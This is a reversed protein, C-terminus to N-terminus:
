VSDEAFYEWNDANDGAKDPDNAALHRAKIEGYYHDDTYLEEHSLEHVIVGARCDRGSLPANWFDRGLYILYAGDHLYVYAYCNRNRTSCDVTIPRSRFVSDLKIWGWKIKEFRNKATQSTPAYNNDFWIKYRDRHNGGMYIQAKTVLRRAERVADGAETEEAANNQNKVTIKTRQIQGNQQVVHALEHALLRRGEGTGPRYEGANFVVDRGVTYARANVAQASEAADNGTHVRVGSFDYGFRPEFFSKEQEPLPEGGGRLSDIRAQTKATVELAKEPITQALLVKDEEGEPKRTIADGACQGYPLQIRGAPSEELGPESIRMVQEAVREAEQEYFDGPQSVTLKAQFVGQKMLRGVAQNGITRQLYVIQVPLSNGSNLQEPRRCVSVPAENKVETTKTTAAAQNGM